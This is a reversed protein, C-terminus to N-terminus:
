ILNADNKRFIGLKEAEAIYAAYEVETVAGGMGAFREGDPIHLGMGTVKGSVEARSVNPLAAGFGSVVSGAIFSRRNVMKIEM